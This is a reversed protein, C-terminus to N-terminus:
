DGVYKMSFSTFQLDVNMDPNSSVRLKYETSETLNFIATLTESDTTADRPINLGMSAVLASTTNNYLDVHLTRTTTISTFTSGVTFTVEFPGSAGIGTSITGAAADVVLKSSNYSDVYGVLDVPTSTLALTNTTSRQLFAIQRKTQLDLIDTENTGVRTDLALIDTENTGVRTDLLGISTTNAIATALNTTSQNTNTNVDAVVSNNFANISNRIALLSGGNEIDTWVIAM